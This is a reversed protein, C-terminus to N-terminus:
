EWIEISRSPSRFTRSTSLTWPNSATADGFRRATEPGAVIRGRRQGMDAGKELVEVMADLM